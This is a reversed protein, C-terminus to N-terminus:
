SMGNQTRKLTRNISNTEQIYGNLVTDTEKLLYEEPHKCLSFLSFTQGKRSNRFIRACGSFGYGMYTHSLWGGTHGYQVHGKECVTM